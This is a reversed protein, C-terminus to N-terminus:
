SLGGPFLAVAFSSAISIFITLVALSMVTRVVGAFQHSGRFISLLVPVILMGAFFAAFFFGFMVAIDEDQLGGFLIEGAVVAATMAFGAIVYGLNRRFFKNRNEIEIGTTFKTGLEAVKSGYARDIVVNGGHGDLWTLIAREGGPLPDAGPKKGTEKLTLAGGSNDFKLLGRVAMSLAAATFARWKERGFGWNHI